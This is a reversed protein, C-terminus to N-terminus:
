RQFPALRLRARGTGRAGIQRKYFEAARFASTVHINRDTSGCGEHMGENLRPRLNTHLRQKPKPTRRIKRRASKPTARAHQPYSPRAPLGPPVAFPRPTKGHQNQAISGHRPERRGRRAADPPPDGLRQAAASPRATASRRHAPREHGHRFAFGQHRPVGARDDVTQRLPQRDPVARPRM